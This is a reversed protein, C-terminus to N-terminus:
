EKKHVEQKFNTKGMRWMWEPTLEAEVQKAVYKIYKEPM